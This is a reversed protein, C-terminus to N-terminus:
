ECGANCSYIHSQSMFLGQVEVVPQMEEMTFFKPVVLFGKDFYQELLKSELQGLKKEKPQSPPKTYM